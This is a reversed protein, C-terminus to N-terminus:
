VLSLSREKEVQELKFLRERCVELLRVAPEEEMDRVQEM